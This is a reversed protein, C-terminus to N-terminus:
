VLGADDCGYGFYYVGFERGFLRTRCPSPLCVTVVVVLQIPAYDSMKM